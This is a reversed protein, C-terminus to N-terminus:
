APAPHARRELAAGELDLNPIVRDLGRPLRWARAGEVPAIPPRADSTWLITRTRAQKHKGSNPSAELPQVM